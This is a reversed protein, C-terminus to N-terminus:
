AAAALIQVDLFYRRSLFSWFRSLRDSKLLARLTLVGQLGPIRWRQGSRKTRMNVVNKATSETVGSGIPLGLGRLRAYRMRDKNNEIYTLHERLTDWAEGSLSTLQRRLVAEIIDTARDSKLLEKKWCDVTDTSQEQTTAFAAGL